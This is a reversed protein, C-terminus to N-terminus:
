LVFATLFIGVMLFALGVKVATGIVFGIWASAGVRGARRVDGHLTLEGIAAGVFPGVILGPLGIFLGAITGLAAGAMARRSAGLTKAGVAAAVFDVTYSLAAVVGIMVLTWAGVRTFGDAWAALLLGAFILMTGPLAPMLIGAFGIVILAIAAIYVLLDM